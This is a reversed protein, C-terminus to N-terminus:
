QLVKNLKRLNSEIRYLYFMSVTGMTIVVKTFGFKDDMAWYLWGFLAFLGSMFMIKFFPKLFPVILSWYLKSYEKMYGKLNGDDLCSQM